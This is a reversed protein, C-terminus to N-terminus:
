LRSWPACRQVAFNMAVLFAAVSLLILSGMAGALAWRGNSTAEVFIAPALMQFSPTGLMTPIVFDSLVSAFVLQIGAAAGPISIPLIVQRWTFWWGAGLNSSARLLSADVKSLASVLPLIMLPLYRHVLGVTMGQAENIIHLPSGILGVKLLTENVVGSDALIVIWGFVRMIVSAYIPLYVTWILFARAKGDAHALTWAFPYSVVLTLIAVGIGSIFTNAFVRLYYSDTLVNLYNVFTFAPVIFGYPSDVYVSNRVLLGMPILFFPILLAGAPTLWLWPVYARINM